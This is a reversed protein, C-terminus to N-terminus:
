HRVLKDVYEELFPCWEIRHHVTWSNELSIFLVKVVTVRQLVINVSHCLQIQDETNSSKRCIHTVGDAQERLFVLEEITSFWDLDRM